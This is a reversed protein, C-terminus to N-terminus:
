SVKMAGSRRKKEEVESASLIAATAIEMEVEGGTTPDKGYVSLLGDASLAYRIEM